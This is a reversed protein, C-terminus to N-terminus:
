ALCMEGNSNMMVSLAACWVAERPLDYDVLSRPNPRVCSRRGLTGKFLWVQSYRHHIRNKSDSVESRVLMHVMTWPHLYSVGFFFM